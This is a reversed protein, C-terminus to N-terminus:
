ELSSCACSSDICRFEVAASATREESASTPVLRLAGSPPSSSLARLAEGGRLTLLNSPLLRLATVPSLAPMESDTAAATSLPRTTSLFSSVLGREASLGRRSLRESDGTLRSFVRPRLDLDAEEEEDELLEDEEEEEPLLLLIELPLLSLSEEDAESRLLPRL